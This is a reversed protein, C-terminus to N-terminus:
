NSGRREVLLAGSANFCVRCFKIFHKRIAASSPLIPNVVRKKSSVSVGSEDNVVNICQSADNFVECWWKSTWVKSSDHGIGHNDFKLFPKIPKSIGNEEKGLGKGETWGYKELQKRAFSNM